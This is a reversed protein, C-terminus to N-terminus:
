CLNRDPPSLSPPLADPRNREPGWWALMTLSSNEVATDDEVECSVGVESDLDVELEVEVKVEPKAQVEVEM